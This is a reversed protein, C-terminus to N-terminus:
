RRATSSGTGVIPAPSDISDPAPREPIIRFMTYTRDFRAAPGRALVEVRGLRELAPRDRNRGIVYATAPRRDGTALLAPDTDSQCIGVALQWSCLSAPRGLYFLRVALDHPFAGFPSEYPNRDWDDYLLTVPVGPPLLRGASEYFAWEVGRRDLRPGLLWFGLGYALGMAAFGAAAARRLRGPARGRRVLRGALRSLGLAAWISWPVQAAIAYHANKVTALSLLALPAASWAWLLRDGAVVSAPPVDRSDRGRGPGVVARRLSHWAGFCALPTWPMAQILLGPAYEWWPEGAFAAPRAALRDAVHMTWLMLAGAGHRVVMALPWAFALVLAAIWGAPFMLRRLAARDRRWPIAVAVAVLILVAGFGIGKVLSTIGLLVFFARRAPRWGMPAEDDVASMRDFAVMAWTIICALIVDAEALRGRLVSWATTAQVAGALLGIGPGYHRVALVAVGLVLLTAAIASPLRAVAEDVGGAIRGALTVLWWPLPPKELWPRGGITPYAWGGSDLMERAGQAVFAEHYSLRGSQGLGPLLVLASLGLLCTLRRVGLKVGAM